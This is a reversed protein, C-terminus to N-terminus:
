RLSVGIGLTATPYEAFTYDAQITVVTINFRLGVNARLNNKSEFDMQVKEEFKFSKKQHEFVISKVIRNNNIERKINFSIKNMM